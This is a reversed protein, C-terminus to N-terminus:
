AKLQRVALVGAHRLKAQLNIVLAMKGPAADCVSAFRSVSQVPRRRQLTHCAFPSGPIVREWRTDTRAESYSATRVKRIPQLHVFHYVSASTPQPNVLAWLDLWPLNPKARAKVPVAAIQQQKRVWGFGDFTNPILRVHHKQLSSM